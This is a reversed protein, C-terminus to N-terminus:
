FRYAAFLTISASPTATDSYVGESKYLNSLMLAMDLGIKFNGFQFYPDILVGVQVPNCNKTLDIEGAINDGEAKLSLPFCLRLGSGIGFHKFTPNLAGFCVDFYAQTLKSSSEAGATEDSTATHRLGLGAGAYLNPREPFHYNAEIGGGFTPGSSNESEGGHSLAQIYVGGDLRAVFRLKGADALMDGDYVTQAKAAATALLICLISYIARKM